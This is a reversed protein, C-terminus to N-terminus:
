FSSLSSAIEQMISIYRKQGYLLFDTTADRSVTMSAFDGDLNLATDTNKRIHLAIVWNDDNVEEPAFQIRELSNGSPGISRWWWNKPLRFSYHLRERKYTTWQKPLPATSTASSSSIEEERKNEQPKKETNEKKEETDKSLVTKQRLLDSVEEPSLRADVCIGTANKELSTLECRFHKPCVKKAVGGCREVGDVSAVTKPEKTWQLGMLMEYFVAKEENVSESPILSFLIMDKQGKGKPVIIDIQKDENGMISWGDRGGVSIVNGTLMTKKLAEEEPSGNAIKQIIIGGKADKSPIYKVGNKQDKRQWNGPLSVRIKLEDEWFLSMRKKAEDELVRVSFVEIAKKEDEMEGTIEVTNKEYRSLDVTSSKLLYKKGDTEQLYHTGNEYITIEKPLLVGEKVVAIHHPSIHTQEGKKEGCASFLLASCFLAFSFLTYKM